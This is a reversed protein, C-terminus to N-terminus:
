NPNPNQVILIVGDGRLFLKSINRTQTTKEAGPTGKLHHPVAQWIEVVDEMLLNFHKDFAKVRGYISKNHRCKVLIPLKQRVATKLLEFPGKNLQDQEFTPDFSM